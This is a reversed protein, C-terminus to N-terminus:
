QGSGYNPNGDHQPVLVAGRNASKEDVQFHPNQSLTEVENKNLGHEEDWHNRHFTRAFARAILQEGIYRIRAM